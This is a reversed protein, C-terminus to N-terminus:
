FVYNIEWGVNDWLDFQGYLDNDGGRYDSYVLKAEINDSFKWTIILQSKTGQWGNLPGGTSIFTYFSTFLRDELSRWIKNVFFIHGLSWRNFGLSERWGSYYSMMPQYFVNVRGPFFLDFKMAGSILDTESVGKGRRLIGNVPDWKDFDTFHQDTKYIIEARYTFPVRQLVPVGKIVYGFDIASGFFHARTYEPDYFLQGLNDQKIFNTSTPSFGYMYGLSWTSRGLKTDFRAAWQHDKFATGPEDASGRYRPDSRPDPRSPFWWPSGPYPNRTPEYDPIWLFQFSSERFTYTINSMWLPIRLKNYHSARVELFDKADMNHIFDM